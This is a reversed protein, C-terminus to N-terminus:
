QGAGNRQQELWGSIIVMPIFHHLPSSAREMLEAYMDKPMRFTVETHREERKEKKPKGIMENALERVQRSTYGFEVAEGLVKDAIEPLFKAVASHHHVTLAEIRREPPFAKAVYSCFYLINRTFGTAQQALDFTVKCGYNRKGFQLFDGVWWYTSMCVHALARGIQVWEQESTGESIRLETPSLRAGEVHYDALSKYRAPALIGKNPPLIEVAAKGVADRKAKCIEYVNGKIKIHAFAQPFARMVDYSYAYGHRNLWTPTPLTGGNVLALQELIKVQETITSDRVNRKRLTNRQRVGLGQSEIKALASTLM